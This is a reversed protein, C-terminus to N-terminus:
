IIGRCQSWQKMHRCPKSIMDSSVEPSHGVIMARSPSHCGADNHCPQFRGLSSPAMNVTVLSPIHETQIGIVDLVNRANKAMSCLSDERKTYIVKRIDWTTWLREKDVTVNYSSRDAAPAQAMWCIIATRALNHRISGGSSSEKWTLWSVYYKIKNRSCSKAWVKFHRQITRSEM